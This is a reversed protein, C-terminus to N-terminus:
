VLIIYTSNLEATKWKYTVCFVKFVQGRIPVLDVDKCLQKAGFGACNVVLDFEGLDEFSTIEKKLIKGGLKEFRFRHRHFILVTNCWLLTKVKTAAM